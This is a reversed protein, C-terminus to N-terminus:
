SVDPWRTVRSNERSKVPTAANQDTECLATHFPVVSTFAGVSVGCSPLSWSIYLILTLKQQDRPSGRQMNGLQLM